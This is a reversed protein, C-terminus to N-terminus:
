YLERWRLDRKQLKAVEAVLNEYESTSIDIDTGPIDELKINMGHLVKSTSPLTSMNYALTYKDENKNVKYFRIFYKVDGSKKTVNGEISWPIIMKGEKHLTTIDYFPVQYIHSENGGITYYILCTMNSLDVCDYFRDLKFYIVEARHDTEVSLFKPAEIIRSELDINYIENRHPLVVMSPPYDNQLQFEFLYDQITM